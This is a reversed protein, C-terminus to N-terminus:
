FALMRIDFIVGAMVKSRHEAFAEMEAPTTYDVPIRAENGTANTVPGILGITPDRQVQSLLREVWGRTVVTDNNLFILYEGSAEKVALNNGAAFGKNETNLIVKLNPHTRAFSKLWSPTEDSSANDVVVVEFNPYATNCYVSKLCLHNILLNNYTLILISVKPFRALDLNGVPQYRIERRRQYYALWDQMTVTRHPRKFRNRLRRYFLRFTGMIGNERFLRRIKAGFNKIRIIFRM